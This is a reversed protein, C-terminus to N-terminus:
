FAWSWHKNHYAVHTYRDAVTKVGSSGIADFYRRKSPYGEKNDNLNWHPEFTSLLFIFDELLKLFKLQDCFFM